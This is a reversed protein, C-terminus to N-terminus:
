RALEREPEKATNLMATFCSIHTERKVVPDFMDAPFATTPDADIFLFLIPEKLIYLVGDVNLRQTILVRRVVWVTGVPVDLARGVAQETPKRNRVAEMGVQWDTM